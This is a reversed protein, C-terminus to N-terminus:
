VAVITSKDGVIASREIEKLKKNKWSRDSNKKEWQSGTKNRMTSKDGVITLTVHSPFLQSFTTFTNLLLVLFELKMFELIFSSNWTFIKLVRTEYVGTKHWVRTELFHYMVLYKKLCYYFVLFKLFNHYKAIKAWTWSYWFIKRSIITSPITMTSANWTAIRISLQWGWPFFVFIIQFILLM